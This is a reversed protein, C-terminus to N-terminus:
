STQVRSLSGGFCCVSCDSKECCRLSIQLHQDGHSPELFARCTYPAGLFLRSQSWLCFLLQPQSCLLFCYHLLTYSLYIFQSAVWNRASGPFPLHWCLLLSFVATLLIRFPPLGSLLLCPSLRCPPLGCPCWCLCRPSPLSSLRRGLSVVLLVWLLLIGYSASVSWSPPLM